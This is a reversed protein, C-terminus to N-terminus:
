ASIILRHTKVIKNLLKFVEEHSCPQPDGKRAEYRHMDTFLDPVIRTSIHQFLMNIKPSILLLLRSNDRKEGANKDMASFFGRTRIGGPGGLWELL